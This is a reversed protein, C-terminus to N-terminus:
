ESDSATILNEYKTEFTEQLNKAETGWCQSIRKWWSGILRSEENKYVHQMFEIIKPEYLKFAKTQYTKSKFRHLHIPSVTVDTRNSVEIRYYDFPNDLKISPSLIKAYQYSDSESHQYAVIEGVYYIHIPNKSLMAIAENSLQDGLQYELNKNLTDDNEIDERTIKLMDLVHGIQRTETCSIMAKIAVVNQINYSLYNMLEFTLLDAHSVMFPVSESLYITLKRKDCICLSESLKGSNEDKSNEINVLKTTVSKVIKIQLKELNNLREEMNREVTKGEHIIIRYIGDKFEPSTVITQFVEEPKMTSTDPSVLPFEELKSTPENYKEVDDVLIENVVQSLGRINFTNVVWKPFRPHIIMFQSLNIRHKIWNSNPYVLEKLPRLVRNTDPIHATKFIRFTEDDLKSTKKHNAVHFIISCVLEFQNPNLPNGGQDQMIKYLLDVFFTINDIEKVCQVADTFIQFKEKNWVDPLKYYYPRLDLTTANPLCLKKAPLLDICGVVPFLPHESLRELQYKHDSSLQKSSIFTVIRPLTVMYESLPLSITSTINSLHKIVVSFDPSTKNFIKNDPLYNDPFVPAVSWVLESYSPHQINTYKDFVLNNIKNMRDDWVGCFFSIKKWEEILTKKVDEKKDIMDLCLLNILESSEVVSSDTPISNSLSKARSLLKQYDVKVRLGLSILFRSWDPGSYLNHVLLNPQNKFFLRLSPDSSDFLTEVRNLSGDQAELWHREKLLKVIDLKTGELMNKIKSLNNKIYLMIQHRRNSTIKDIKPLVHNMLFIGENMSKIGLKEYLTAYQPKSKLFKSELDVNYSIPLTYWTSNDLSIHRERCYDKIQDLLETPAGNKIHYDIDMWVRKSCMNALFDPFEGNELEFLPLRRILKVLSSDYHKCEANFLSLLIDYDKGSLGYFEDKKAQLLIHVIRGKIDYCIDDIIHDCDKLGKLFRSDLFPINIKKVIQSLKFYTDDQNKKLYLIPSPHLMGDSTPLLPYKKHVDWNNNKTLHAWLKQLWELSPHNEDWKIKEGLRMMPFEKNLIREFTAETLRGFLKKYELPFLRYFDYDVFLGSSQPFLQPFVKDPSYFENLIKPILALCDNSVGCLPLGVLTQSGDKQNNCLYELVDLANQRTRFPTYEYPLVKKGDFIYKFHKLRDVVLKTSVGDMVIGQQGLDEILYNPLQGMKLGLLEFATYLSSSGFFLTNALTDYVYCIEDSPYKKMKSLITPRSILTSVLKQQLPKWFVSTLKTSLPWLSYFYASTEAIFKELEEPTNSSIEKFSELINLILDRCAPMLLEDRIKINQNVKEKDSEGQGTFIDTRSQNLIFSASVHFPLGTVIGVPLYNFLAGQYNISKGKKIAVTAYNSKSYSHRVCIYDEQIKSDGRTITQTISLLSVRAKEEVEVHKYGRKGRQKRTPNNENKVKTSRTSDVETMRTLVGDKKVFLQIRTVNNLFLNMTTMQKELNQILSDIKNRHYVHNKIGSKSAVKKTRLPLRFLTGEFQEIDGFIRYPSFQDPFDTFYNNELYKIRIGPDKSSTYPVYETHPDFLLYSGNSIISPVDTFHYVSNFGVGFQGIKNPDNKKSGVRLQTIAKFDQETFKSNNYILISPGQFEKMSKSILSETGYSDHDFIFFVETAGADDANQVMETFMSSDSYENIISNLSVMLPEKQGYLEIGSPVIVSKLLHKSCPVLGLKDATANSINPHVYKLKKNHLNSAQTNDQLWPTDDYVMSTSEVLICESSPLWIKETNPDIDGINSALRVAVDVCTQLTVGNIPNQGASEQIKQLFTLFHHTTFDTHIKFKSLLETFRLMSQPLVAYFPNLDVSRNYVVQEDSYFRDEVWIWEKPLSLQDCNVTKTILSDDIYKYIKNIQNTISDFVGIVVKRKEKLKEDTNELIKKIEETGFLDTSIKRMRVSLKKLITFESKVDVHDPNWHFLALVEKSPINGDLIFTGTCLGDDKSSSPRTNSANSLTYKKYLGSPDVLKNIGYFSDISPIWNIEMIQNLSDDGEIDMRDFNELFYEWLTKAFSYAQDSDENTSSFAKEVYKCLTIFHPVSLISRLHLSRLNSLTNEDTFSSSPYSGNLRSLLQSLKADKFEPDYLESPCKHVYGSVPIFPLKSLETKAGHSLKHVDELADIIFENFKDDLSQAKICSSVIELIFSEYGHVTIQLKEILNEDAPIDRDIINSLSPLQSYKRPPVIFNKLGATNVYRKNTKWLPLIRVIDIDGKDFSHSSILKILNHIDTDSLETVKFLSHIDEERWINIINKLTAKPLVKDMFDLKISYVSPDVIHIKLKLLTQVLEPQIQGGSDYLSKSLSVHVMTGSSTVIPLLPLHRYNNVFETPPLSELFRWLSDFWEFKTSISEFNSQNLRNQIFPVAHQHNFLDINLVEIEKTYYLSRIHDPLCSVNVIQDSYSSFIDTELSSNMAIYNTDGSRVQFRRFTGNNLRLLPVGELEIYKRDSFGYHLFHDFYKIIISMIRENLDSLTNDKYKSRLITRFMSSDLVNIKQSKKLLLDMAIYNLRVLNVGLEIMASSINQILNHSSSSDHDDDHDDDDNNEEDVYKLPVFYSEKLSNWSNNNNKTWFIALDNNIVYDYISEALGIWENSIMLKPDPLLKQVYAWHYYTNGRTSLYELLKAYATAACEKLLYQNWEVKLKGQGQMDDQGSWLSRRNVALEFCGNVHAGLKTSTTIPLFCFIKGEVEKFDESLHEPPCRAAVGAWPILKINRKTFNEVSMRITEVGGMRNSVVWHEVQDVDSDSKIQVEFPFIIPPENTLKEFYEIGHSTYDVMAMRLSRIKETNLIELSYNLTPKDADKEWTLFEIKEVHKLFLIVTSGESKFLKLLNMVGDHTYPSPSIRSETAQQETRLPFRFITGEFPTKMDCGFVKYPQTQDPYKKWIEKQVFNM